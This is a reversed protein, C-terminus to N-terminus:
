AEIVDEEYFRIYENGDYEDITFRTGKPVWEIKLGNAGGLYVNKYGISKIFDGINNNGNELFYEIIRRDLAIDQTDWTSWGAGFGKSILVGLENKENYYREVMNNIEKEKDTLAKEAIKKMKEIIKSNKKWAQPSNYSDIGELLSLIEKALIM